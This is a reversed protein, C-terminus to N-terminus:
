LSKIKIERISRYHKLNRTILTANIQYACAAIIADPISAHYIRRFDGALGAIKADIEVIALLKFLENIKELTKKQTISEGVHLELNTVVSVFLNDGKKLLMELKRITPRYGRLYDIIIDCDLLYRM